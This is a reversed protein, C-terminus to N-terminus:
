RALSIWSTKLYNLPAKKVLYILDHTKFPTTQTAESVHARLMKELSLHCLFIVYLYRGTALMHRATDLDYDALEIWNRTDKRMGVNYSVIQFSDNSQFSILTSNYSFDGASSIHGVPNSDAVLSYWTKGQVAINLHNKIGRLIRRHRMM